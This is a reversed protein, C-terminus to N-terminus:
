TMRGKDAAMVERWIKALRRRNIVIEDTPLFLGQAQILQRARRVSEFTFKNENAMKLLGGFTGVGKHDELWRCLLLGDNGRTEPYDRLIGYVQGRVTDLLETELKTRMEEAKEWSWEM